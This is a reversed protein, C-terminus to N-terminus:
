PRCRDRRENERVADWYTENWCAGWGEVYDHAYFTGNNTTHIAPRRDRCDRYGRKFPESARESPYTGM